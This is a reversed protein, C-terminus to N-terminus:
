LLGDRIQSLDIWGMAAMWKMSIWILIVRRVMYTGRGEGMLTVQGVYRM